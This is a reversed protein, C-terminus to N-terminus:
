QKKTRNLIDGRRAVFGKRQDLFATSKAICDPRLPWTLVYTMTPASSIHPWRASRQLSVGPLCNSDVNREETAMSSRGVVISKHALHGTRDGIIEMRVEGSKMFWKTPIESRGSYM